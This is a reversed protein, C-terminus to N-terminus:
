SKAVLAPTMGADGGGYPHSNGVTRDAWVRYPRHRIASATDHSGGTGHRTIETGRVTAHHPLGIKAAANMSHLSAQGSGSTTNDLTTSPGVESGFRRKLGGSRQGPLDRGGSRAPCGNRQVAGLELRHRWGPTHYGAARLALAPPQRAARQRSPGTRDDSPATADM